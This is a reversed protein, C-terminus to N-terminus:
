GTGREDEGRVINEETGKDPADAPLGSPARDVAPLCTRLPEEGRLRRARGWGTEPRGSRPEDSTESTM